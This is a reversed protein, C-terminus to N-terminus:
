ISFIHKLSINQILVWLIYKRTFTPFFYIEPYGEIIKNYTVPLPTNIISSLETTIKELEGYFCISHTKMSLMETLVWLM